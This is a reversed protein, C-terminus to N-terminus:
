SRGGLAEPLSKTDILWQDPRSTDIVRAANVLQDTRIGRQILLVRDRTRTPVPTYALPEDELDLTALMRLVRGAHARGSHPDFRVDRQPYWLGIPVSKKAHHEFISGAIAIAREAHVQQADDGAEPEIIVLWIRMSFSEAHEVVVLADRKASQKWAIRRRPDGPRYERLGWFENSQGGHMSRRISEDGQTKANRLLDTRLRLPHPLVLLPRPQDFVLSKQLLGFPFRTSLRIDRLVYRGRHAPVFSGVCNGSSNPAIHVVSAPLLVGRKTVSRSYESVLCAFLPFFRSQNTITYHLHVRQGAHVEHLAKAHLRTRMLANGSILGSVFITAIAVGFLWFLLNNQSNVAGIALFVTVAIYMLGGFTLKSERKTARDATPDADM